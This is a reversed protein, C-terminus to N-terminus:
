FQSYSSSIDKRNEMKNGVDDPPARCPGARATQKQRGWLLSNNSIYIYLAMREKHSQSALTVRLEIGLGLM